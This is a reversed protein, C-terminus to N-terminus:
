RSAGIEIPASQRTYSAAPQLAPQPPASVQEVEAATEQAIEKSVVGSFPYQAFFKNVYATPLSALRIVEWGAEVYKVPLKERFVMVAKKTLNGESDYLKLGFLAGGELVSELLRPNRALFRATEENVVQVHNEMHISM